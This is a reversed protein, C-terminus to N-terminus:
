AFFEDWPVHAPADHCVIEIMKLFLPIKKADLKGERVMNEITPGVAVALMAGEVSDNPM